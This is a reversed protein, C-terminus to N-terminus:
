THLLVLSAQASGCVQLDDLHQLLESFTFFDSKSIQQAATVKRSKLAEARASFEKQHEAPAFSLLYMAFEHPSLAGSGDYDCRAFERERVALQCGCVCGCCM